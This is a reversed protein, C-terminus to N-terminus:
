FMTIKQAEMILVPLYVLSCKAPFATKIPPDFFTWFKHTSEEHVAVTHTTYVLCASYMYRLVSAREHLWQHLPFAIIIVHDSHTDTATPIWCAIRMRRIINNDTVQRVRGYKKVSDWLHRSKRPPPTISRSIHTKTNEAVETQFMEWELFFHTPYFRLHAHTKM